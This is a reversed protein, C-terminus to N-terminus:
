LPMTGEDAVCELEDDSTVIFFLPCLQGGHFSRAHAVGAAQHRRRSLLSLHDRHSPPVGAVAIEVRDFYEVGLAFHPSSTLPFTM